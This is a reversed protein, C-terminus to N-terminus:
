FKCLHCAYMHTRLTPNNQVLRSLFHMVVEWQHHAPTQPLRSVGHPQGKTVEITRLTPVHHPYLGTGLLSLTYCSSPRDINPHGLEDLLIRVKGPTRLTGPYTFLLSQGETQDQESNSLPRASWRLQQSGLCLCPLRCVSECWCRQRM